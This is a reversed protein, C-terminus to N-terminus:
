QKDTHDESHHVFFKSASKFTSACRPCQFLIKEVSSVGGGSGTPVRIRIILPNIPDYSVAPGGSSRRENNSNNETSSAQNQGSMNPETNIHQRLEINRRERPSSLVKHFQKSSLTAKTHISSITGSCM